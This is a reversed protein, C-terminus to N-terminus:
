SQSLSARARFCGRSRLDDLVLRRCNAAACWRGSAVRGCGLDDVGSRTGNRYPDSLKKLLIEWLGASPTLDYQVFPFLWPVDGGIDAVLHALYGVSWGWAAERGWIVRVLVTTLALGLLTHGLM